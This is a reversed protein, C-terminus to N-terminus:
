PLLTLSNQKRRWLIAEMNGYNRVQKLHHGRQRLSKIMETTLAGQEYQVVDPWLQHHFRGHNIWEKPEGEKLMFRLGALAVMSIIRSGGPTGLILTRQPGVIITPTMSSLMRKNPAVANAAGQILGYANPEGPQTAFDDMEDNLLIGTSPSIYGSGFGYNISLTASVMNGASDIISFHTTDRGGGAPESRNSLQCAPTAQDMEISARMAQLHAPATLNPVTVFDSDGMSQNRDRYARKMAEVLLHTREAAGTQRLNDSALIGFIEQLVLGGSSPLSASIIQYGQWEFQVPDREVVRYRDLDSLRILGGDRLMDAVLRGASEGRYLDDVGREAYRMLLQALAPQRITAHTTFLQRASYNMVKKRWNIMRQLRAGAVFGREALTVAPAVIQARSLRGYRKLLHDVGALLGPVAAAQPGDISSRNRYISGDGALEPATERADIMVFRREKAIYLLFFGGGGVGSSGPEVVGLALATAAAADFANGGSNLMAVGAEVAAPQAAVVAAAPPYEAAAAPSILLLQLALGWIKM